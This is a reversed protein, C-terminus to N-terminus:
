SVSIVLGLDRIIATRFERVAIGNDIPGATGVVYDTAFNNQEIIEHVDSM